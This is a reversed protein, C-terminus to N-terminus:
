GFPMNGSNQKPKQRPTFAKPDGAGKSNIYVSGGSDIEVDENKSSIKMKKSSLMESEDHSNHSM